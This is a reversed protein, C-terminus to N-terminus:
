PALWRGKDPYHTPWRHAPRGAREWWQDFRRKWVQFEKESTLFPKHRNAYLAREVAWVNGRGLRWPADLKRLDLIGYGKVRGTQDIFPAVYSRLMARLSPYVPKRGHLGPCRSRAVSGWRGDQRYVFIVHDLEDTSEIDVIIPPYGHQELITAATVAAELCHARRATVVGRFTRSTEGRLEWNYPLSNLWAQVKSPTDLRQVLRREAPTFTSLPPKL